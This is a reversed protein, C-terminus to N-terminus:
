KTEKILGYYNYHSAITGLIEELAKVTQKNNTDGQMEEILEEIESLASNWGGVFIRDTRKSM